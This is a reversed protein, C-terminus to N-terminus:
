ADAINFKMFPSALSGASSNYATVYCADFSFGYAEVRTRTLDATAAGAIANKDAVGDYFYTSVPVGLMPLTDIDWEHGDGTMSRLISDREQRFLMGVSGGNVAYFTAIKNAANALRNTFHLIKDSYQIQKNKDNYLGQEELKRIRSEFGTNGVIHLPGYFDNASMLPNIDGIVEAAQALTAAITNGTVTYLGLTDAFVQTKKAEIAAIAATDMTEALKYLYKSFKRNFDQQYGIENNMYAAPVMTFGWAYTVFTFSVMQSTNESDSITVSRTSGISIGADFDIVPTQLTQGVAREATAVLEPTILGGPNTTEQLFLDLAGYRSPRLEWRDLNSTARFNQMRTNLLSM